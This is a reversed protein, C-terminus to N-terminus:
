LDIMRMDDQVEMRIRDEIRDPPYPHSALRTLYSVSSHSRPYRRSTPYARLIGRDNAESKRRRSGRQDTPAAPPYPAPTQAQQHPHPPLDTAKISKRPNLPYPHLSQLCSICYITEERGQKREESLFVALCLDHQRSICRFLAHDVSRPKLYRRMSLHNNRERLSYTEADDSGLSTCGEGLLKLSSM